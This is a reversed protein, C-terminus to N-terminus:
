SMWMTTCGSMEIIWKMKHFLFETSYKIKVGWCCQLSNQLRGVYGNPYFNAAWKGSNSELYNCTLNQCHSQSTTCLSFLYLLGFLIKRSNRVSTYTWCIIWLSVRSDHGGNVSDTPLSNWYISQAQAEMPTSLMRSALVEESLLM